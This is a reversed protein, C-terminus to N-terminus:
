MKFKLLKLFLNIIKLQTYSYTSTLASAWPPGPPWIRRTSPVLGLDEPLAALTRLWQAM